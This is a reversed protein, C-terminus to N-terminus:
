QAAPLTIVLIDREEDRLLTNSYFLVNKKLKWVFLNWCNWGPFKVALHPFIPDTSLAQREPVLELQNEFAVEGQVPWLWM